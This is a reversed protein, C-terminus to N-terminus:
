WATTLEVNQLEEMTAHTQAVTGNGVLTSTTAFSSGVFTVSTATATFVVSTTGSYASTDGGDGVRGIGITGGDHTITVLATDAAETTGHFFLTVRYTNGVTLNSFTLDSLTTNASAGTKDSALTKRQWRNKKVLGLSDVAAAAFGIAAAAKIKLVRLRDGTGNRTAWTVYDGATSSGYAGANLYAGSNGFLIYFQTSSVVQLCFGVWKGGNYSFNQVTATTQGVTYWPGTGNEQMQFLIIDGAQVASQWQCLYRTRTAAVSQTIAPIVGGLPSNTFYASNTYSTNASTGEAFTNSAYEIDGQGANLAARGVDENTPIWAQFSIVDAPFASGQQRTHSNSSTDSGFYLVTADTSPLAVVNFITTSGNITVKGAQFTSSSISRITRSTPISMSATGAVGTGLTARVWVDIGEGNTRWLAFDTTVTGFNTWVPPWSQWPGPGTAVGASKDPSIVIDSICVGGGTTMDTTARLVLSLTATSGSDFSTRHVWDTAQLASIIPTHLATTRDAQSTIIAELQGTTLTGIVKQAFELELKKNLDVDDLTFDWYVYDATSQVDADATIKYGTGTTHERPLESATNSRALDLDGVATAGTTSVEASPNTIYNKRGSGSGSGVISWSTGNYVKAKLVTSDFFADGQAAAGHAAVYAAESAFVELSDTKGVHRVEGTSDKAKVRKDASDAYLEVYGAAPTSPAAGEVLTVRAGSIPAAAPATTQVGDSLQISKVEGAM